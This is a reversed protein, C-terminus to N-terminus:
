DAYVDSSSLVLDTGIPTGNVPVSLVLEVMHVTISTSTQTVRHLYLTGVGPIPVVTNPPVADTIAPDGAVKLGTFASGDTLVDHHGKTKTVTVSSQVATATVLGNLLDLGQITDTTTGSASTGNVTGEATSTATGSTALGPVSIGVTSNTEIKGATGDCGLLAVASAGTTIMSATSSRSAYARGGLIAIAPGTLGTRAEGVVVHLGAPLGVTNSASIELDIARVVLSVGGSATKAVKQENLVLTGLGPVPVSTNAAPAEPFSVGEITLDTFTADGTTAYTGSTDSSESTVSLGSAKVMGDLDVSAITSSADAAKTRGSQSTSATDTIAGVSGVAFQGAAATNSSSVGAVSTCGIQALATRGSSLVNGEASGILATGYAEAQYGIRTGAAPV